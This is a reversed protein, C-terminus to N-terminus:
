GRYEDARGRGHYQQSGRDDIGGLLERVDGYRTYYGTLDRWIQTTAALQSYDPIEPSSVNEQHIVSYGRYHLHATEPALSTTKLPTEPLGAAWEISDWYVELNTRLRM